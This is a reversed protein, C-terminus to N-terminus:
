KLGANLPRLLSAKTSQLRERASIQVLASHAILQHPRAGKLEVSLEAELYHIIEARVRHEAFVEFLCGIPECRQGFERSSKEGRAGCFHRLNQIRLRQWRALGCKQPPRSAGNLGADSLSLLRVFLRLQSEGYVLGLGLQRFGGAHCWYSVVPQGIGYM